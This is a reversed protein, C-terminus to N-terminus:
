VEVDVKGGAKVMVIRTTRSGDALLIDIPIQSLDRDGANTLELRGDIQNLRVVSTKPSLVDRWWSGIGYVTDVYFDGQFSELTRRLLWETLRLCAGGAFQRLHQHVMLIMPIGLRHSRHLWFNLMALHYIHQPDSPYRATLEVLDTGTPHHPRPQRVANDWASIDCGSAVELGAAAVATPTSADNGRGPKAWSRPRFGLCREIWRQAEIINDRQEGFSSRDDGIWPYLHGEGARTGAKWANEPAGATDTDFHLHGHNGIELVYRRGSAAPYPLGYRIDAERRLWEIFQPIQEAGRNVGYHDSWDRASAADLTLRTSLYMTQAIGYRAGLGLATELGAISQFSSTDYLDMDGRWAFAAQRAGPYRKITAGRIESPDIHRCRDYAMRLIRHEGDWTVSLELKGASAAERPLLTWRLRAVAGPNMVPLVQRAEGAALWDAPATVTVRVPQQTPTPTHNGVILELEFPKGLSLTGLQYDPVRSVFPAELTLTLRPHVSPAPFRGVGEAKHRLGVVDLRGPIRTLVSREWLRNGLELALLLLALLALFDPRAGGLGILALAAVAAAAELWLREVRARKELLEWFLNALYMLWGMRYPALPLLRSTLLLAYLCTGLALMTLLLPSGNM